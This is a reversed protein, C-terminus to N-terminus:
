PTGTAPPAPPPSPTAAPAVVGPPPTPNPVYVVPGGPPTNPDRVIAGRAEEQALREPSMASIPPNPNPIYKVTDPQDGPVLIMLGKAVAETLDYQMVTSALAEAISEGERVIQGM